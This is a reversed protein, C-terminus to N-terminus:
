EKSAATQLENLLSHLLRILDRRSGSTFTTNGSSVLVATGRGPQTVTLTEFLGDTATSDTGVHGGAFLDSAQTLKLIEGVESATLARNRDVTAPDGPALTRSCFVATRGKGELVAVDLRCEGSLAKAYERKLSLQVNTLQAWSPGAILTIVAALVFANSLTSKNM